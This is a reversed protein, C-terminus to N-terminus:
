KELLKCGLVFPGALVLAFMIVALAVIPLLFWLCSIFAVIELDMLVGNKNSHDPHKYGIWFALGLSTLMAGTAWVLVGQLWTIDSLFAEM